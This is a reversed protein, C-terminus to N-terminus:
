LDLHLELEGETLRGTLTLGVAEYLSQAVANGPVISTQFSSNVRHRAWDIALGLAARGIGRGQFPAAIMMRMLFAANPDDGEEVEDHERMDILGLLGVIDGGSWVSFVYGGPCYAMEALTIPNPAVLRVQGPAVELAFLTELDSREVPELRVDATV